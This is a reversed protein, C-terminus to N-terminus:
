RVRNSVKLRVAQVIVSSVAATVGMALVDVWAAQKPLVSFYLMALLYILVGVAIADVYTSLRRLSSPESIM